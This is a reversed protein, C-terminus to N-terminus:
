SPMTVDLVVEGGIFKDTYLFQQGCQICRDINIITGSSQQRCVTLMGEKCKPCWSKFQSSSNVRRLDAHAVRMREAKVNEGAMAPM